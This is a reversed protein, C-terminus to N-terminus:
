QFSKRFSIQIDIVFHKSSIKLLTNEFVDVSFASILRALKLILSKENMMHPM